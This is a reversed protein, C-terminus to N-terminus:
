RLTGEFEGYLLLKLVENDRLHWSAWTLPSEGHADKAKKDAGAAILAKIMEAEGFAAARHLPTEGRTRIDRMYCLTTVGVLTRRNVDAGASILQKVVDTREAPRSTKSTAFHLISEGNSPDLRNSDAGRTLLLRAAEARGEYAAAELAADVAGPPIADGQDLLRALEQVEGNYAADYL